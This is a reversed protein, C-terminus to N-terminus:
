RWFDRGDREEEAAAGAAGPAVDGEGLGAAPAAADQRQVAVVRAHLVLSAAAGDARPDHVHAAHAAGAELRDLGLAPSGARVAVQDVEDFAQRPGRGPGAEVLGLDLPQDQHAGEVAGAQALRLM